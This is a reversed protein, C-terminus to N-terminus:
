DNLELSLDCAMFVSNCFEGFVRFTQAIRRTVEGIMRGHVEILSGM